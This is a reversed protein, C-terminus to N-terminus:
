LFKPRAPEPLAPREPWAKLAAALKPNDREMLEAQRGQFRDWQGAYDNAADELHTRAEDKPMDAPRSWGTGADDNPDVYLARM